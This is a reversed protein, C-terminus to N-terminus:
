LASSSSISSKFYPLTQFNFSLGQFQLEKGININKNKIMDKLILFIITPKDFPIEKVKITKGLNTIIFESIKNNISISNGCQINILYFDKEKRFRLKSNVEFSLDTNELEKELKKFIEENILFKKSVANPGVYLPDKTGFKGNFAIAIM